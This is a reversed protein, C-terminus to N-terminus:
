NYEPCLISVAEASLKVDLDMGDNTKIAKRGHDISAIAARESADSLNLGSRRALCYTTGYTMPDLTAATVSAFPSSALLTAAVITLAKM